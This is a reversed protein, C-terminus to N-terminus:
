SVDRTAILNVNLDLFNHVIIEGRHVPKIIKIKKIKDMAEFIKSKPIPNNTRIPIMKLSLGRALVTSTIIRVPNEIESLAYSVGKKCINGEINIVNSNDKNIILKCSNPCEICTIKKLM